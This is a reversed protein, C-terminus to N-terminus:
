PRRRVPMDVKLNKGMRVLEGIIVEVEIPRGQQADALMSPTHWSDPVIHLQRTNEITRDVISSPIGDEADRFGLARGLLFQDPRLFSWITHMGLMLVEQLLAQIAPISHSEVLHATAPAVYPSYPDVGNPPPPRFLAPLRYNTLTAFSSFAVNWFNKSYKSRQIESHISTETGGATLISALETLIKEESITPTTGTYQHRKYIGLHLRNQVCLCDILGGLRHESHSSVSSTV